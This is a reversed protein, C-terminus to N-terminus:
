LLKKLLNEIWDKNKNVRHYKNKAFCKVVQKDCKCLAVPCPNIDPLCKVIKNRIKWKYQSSYLNFKSCVNTKMILTYCEDHVKCCVDLRDKPKGKGGLGCWNGYGVYDVADRGTIKETMSKFDFVSRRNIVHDGNSTQHFLSLYFFLLMTKM